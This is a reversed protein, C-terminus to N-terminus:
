AARSLDAGINGTACSGFGFSVLSSSTLCISYGKNPAACVDPLRLPHRRDPQSSGPRSVLRSLLRPDSPNGSARYLRPTAWYPYGQLVLFVMVGWLRLYPVFTNILQWAAKRVSPTEYRSFATYWKAESTVTSLAEAPM